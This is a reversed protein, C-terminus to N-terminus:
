KNHFFNELATFGSLKDIQFAHVYSDLDFNEENIRQWDRHAEETRGMSYLCLGRMLLLSNDYPLLRIGEDYYMLARKPKQQVLLKKGAKVFYKSGIEVFDKSMAHKLNDGQKFVMSVEKVMAVPENNNYGPKWMGATMKLVRIMEEDITKSLSNIVNFDTLEGTTTVLFQVVETGETNNKLDEMPYNILKSLYKQVSLQMGTEIYSNYDEIGTFIPPVVKVEGLQKGPYKQGYAVVVFLLATLLVIITKM